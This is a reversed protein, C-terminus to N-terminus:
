GDKARPERDVATKVGTSTVFPGGELPAVDARGDETSLGALPFDKRLPYHPYGEWMMIRRLDPHGSFRIGLLDYAEREHWDAARWVGSVSPLEPPDAAVPAKVRLHAGATMSYLEYVMEFRPTRDLHDIGSADLLMEFGLDQKAYAMIEVLKATESVAM